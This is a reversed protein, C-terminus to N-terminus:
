AHDAETLVIKRYLNEIFRDIIQADYSEPLTSKTTAEEVKELSVM